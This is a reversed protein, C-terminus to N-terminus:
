ANKRLVKVNSAMSRILQANHSRQKQLEEEYAGRIAMLEDTMSDVQATLAAIQRRLEGNESIVQLAHCEAIHRLQLHLNARERARTVSLERVPLAPKAAQKALLTLKQAEAQLNEHRRLTEHGNRVFSDDAGRGEFNWANLQRLSKPADPTLVGDKLLNALRKLKREINIRAAEENTFAVSPKGM